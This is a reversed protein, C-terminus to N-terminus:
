NKTNKTKNENIKKYQIIKECLKYLEDLSLDGKATNASKICIGLNSLDNTGGKSTPIIHDLNYTEPKNLDIKEGTLYCVPNDGIKNLVDQYSYNSSINNVLGHTKHKNSRKFTKVKGRFSQNDFEEKSTRNRFASIKRFISKRNKTQSRVREKESGDGCHYSITSKSCNLISQIEKYSKGESRLKLIDEKRKKNNLNKRKKTQFTQNM